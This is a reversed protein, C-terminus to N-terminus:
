IEHLHEGQIVSSRLRGQEVVYLNGPFEKAFTTSHTVYIISNGQDLFNHLLQVFMKAGKVDLSETCEDLLLVEPGVMMARAFAVKKMEGMSLDAPRLSLDKDFDIMACINQIMFEREAATLTPYHIQLPLSLNQLISQNAWLAADQFIFSCKSRFSRNEKETMAQINKGQFLVKGGTPVLIGGILKLLTSKGCGSKGLIATTTGRPIEMSIGSVIKKGRSSFQVNDVTFLNEDEM